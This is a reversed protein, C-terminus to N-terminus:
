VQDLYRKLELEPHITNHHKVYLAYQIAIHEWRGCLQRFASVNIEWVTLYQMLQSFIHEEKLSTDCSRFM